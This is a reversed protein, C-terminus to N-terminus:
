RVAEHTSSAALKDFFPATNSEAIVGSGLCQGDLYFAAFQGPALGSDMGDLIHCTGRGDKGCSLTCSRLTPGHRTKVLLGGDELSATAPAVGTNWLLNEVPFTSRPTAVVRDYDNTVFLRNSGPDKGAVYWPGMHIVRPSLVPGIGKRQGITHFWLGRHRGVEEGTAADICPGPREGLHHRLFDDFKLKGLFCVGQSDKRNKTPLDFRQALERVQNKTYAGLPFAAKSLQEQSLASLFYTQDKVADPCLHMSVAGTEPDKEVRAYHGSAVSQFHRGVLAFFMGFKVRTNCMIDPNPTRGASAEAVTYGVVERWYEQQLSLVELPVGAQECVATAYELDEEWPCQNLHALEDELWIKLYFARVKHGQEMLLRLAVSSDVGGSLLVAVENHSDPWKEAAAAATLALEESSAISEESAAATAARSLRGIAEAAESSRSRLGSRTERLQSQAMALINGLGNIRSETMGAPLGVEGAVARPDLALVTDVDEGSLGRALLAVIGRSVRSDSAGQLRVVELQGVRTIDACIMVQAACGPVRQALEAMDPPLATGGEKEYLDGLQVLLLSKSKADPKSRLVQVYRDLSPVSSLPSSPRGGAAAALGEVAELLCCLALVLALALLQM